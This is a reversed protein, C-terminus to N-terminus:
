APTVPTLWGGPDPRVATQIEALVDLLRQTTAGVEGNGVTLREDSIVLAGVAAMGAATGSLAIEGDPETAFDTLDDVTVAREEVEYGLDAAIRLISHRTVGDLFASTLAPTIVRSEDLLVVNSAGTEEIRGGPAFLVQDAGAARASQTIGLAMVYNAGAKAAGFQPTTRPQETEVAVTLPRGGGAFYAGVPSALVLLMAENSPSAAAGVNPETGLLTPRLYLSGPPDPVIDHCAAVVDVVMQTVLDVPPVPLVVAAASTQLRAAHRDLQFIRVVGDVGRHAKLGEFCASGYHLAHSAPHLSLPQLPVLEPQTWVSDAWRAVSMSEGFSTGFPAPTDNQRATRTNPESNTM